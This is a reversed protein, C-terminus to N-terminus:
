TKEVEAEKGFHAPMKHETKIWAPAKGTKLSTQYQRYAKWTAGANIVNALLWRPLVLLVHIPANTLYVARMRQFVRVTMNLMNLSILLQFAVTQVFDPVQNMLYSLVMLILFLTSLVFLISNILGRRDRWMFYRDVLNGEWSFNDMGQFSIGLVWRSKQRMSASFHSPFYERTAIFEYDGNEKEYQACIFRSRFGFKKTMMGLHYDETLTDEKLYDGNQAKQLALILDRSLLTGVGASPIAGGMAERVFLDKTHSESFEDIYVGGVLSHWDVDFSFVPTQIFDASQSFYNLMLLSYPHLVDESDQMLIYDFVECTDAGVEVIKRAMLNLMQGKSTPGNKTNVIVHVKDPFQKELKAAAEWTATDNPYVGIFFHYNEYKIGKLNGRIMPGIVEAEKWNAIMIAIRKQPINKADSIFQRSLKMPGLRHFLAYLDFLLDDVTFILTGIMVPFALILLALEFNSNM